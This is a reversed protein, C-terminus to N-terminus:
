QNLGLSGASMEADTSRKVCRNADFALIWGIWFIPILLVSALALLAAALYAFNWAVVPLNFMRADSEFRAVFRLYAAFSLTLLIPKAISMVIMGDALIASPLSTTSLASLTIDQM